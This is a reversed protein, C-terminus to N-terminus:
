GNMATGTAMESNMEMAYRGSMRFTLAIVKMGDVRRM